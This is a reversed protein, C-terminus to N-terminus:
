EEYILYKKRIEKFKELEPEWSSRISERDTGNIIQEQLKSNGALKNFYGTFFDEKKPLKDYFEILYELHIGSDKKNRSILKSLDYGYCKIGAYPPNESVGKISEPIFFNKGEKFDPHGIQQFPRDTGRGVSVITGEFFCLSPYLYVATMNPLNPSPAVPLQFISSHTYNSCKIVTLDAKIGNELWCEGNVMMAYEGITMGYVVPVAHLGIFSIYKPELVPGDIYFGNPNPRDLVILPIKNEACAQMVYTMTSIFTYFRCGVDQIDFVVIDIGNLDKASPKKKNGYLSVVNINNVPDIYDKIAIGDASNGRYGHEPAFIKKINIGLSILTDPLLKGNIVATQNIVLAVNKDRLVGTYENLQYDGPLIVPPASVFAVDVDSVAEFQALCIDSILSFSLFLIFTINFKM